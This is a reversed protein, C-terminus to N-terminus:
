GNLRQRAAANAEADTQYGYQGVYGHSTSVWGSHGHVDPQPVPAGTHHAIALLTHQRTRFWCALESQLISQGAPSLHGHGDRLGGELADIADWWRQLYPAIDVLYALPEPLDPDDTWSTLDGFCDFCDPIGATRVHYDRVAELEAPTVAESNPLHPVLETANLTAYHQRIERYQQDTTVTLGGPIAFLAAQEDAHQDIQPRLWTRIEGASADYEVLRRLENRDLFMRDSNRDVGM